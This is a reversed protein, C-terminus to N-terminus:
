KTAGMTIAISIGQMMEDVGKGIAFVGVVRETGDAEVHCIVKFLSKLKKDDSKAPSYFMNIFTSRYVKVNEKGWKEIAVDESLGISGIPPHSFIVTPINDYCM